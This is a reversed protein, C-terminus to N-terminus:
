TIWDTLSSAIQRSNSIVSIDVFNWKSSNTSKTSPIYFFNYVHGDRGVGAIHEINGSMYSTLPGVVNGVINGAASRRAADVTVDIFQWFGRTPDFFFNYVHGDRGVGAIHEINGSM